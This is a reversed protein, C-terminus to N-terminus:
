DTLHFISSPLLSTHGPHPELQVLALLQDSSPLGLASTAKEISLSHHGNAPADPAAFDDSRGVRPQANM